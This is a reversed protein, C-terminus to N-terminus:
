PTLTVKESWMFVPGTILTNSEQRIRITVPLSSGTRYPLKVNIPTFATQDAPISIKVIKSTLTHWDSALVEVVVPTDNVPKIGTKVVLDEGKVSSSRDPMEVKIRPNIPSEGGTESGKIQLLTLQVSTLFNAKGKRDELIVQLRAPEDSRVEFPIEQDVLLTKNQYDAYNLLRRFILRNDHGLLEIRILGDEGPHSLVKLKLPSILRANNGPQLIVPEGSEPVTVKTVTPTVGTSFRADARVPTGALLSLTTLGTVLIWIVQRRPLTFRGSNFGRHFFRIV